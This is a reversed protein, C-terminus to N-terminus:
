EQSEEENSEALKDIWDDGDIVDPGDTDEFPYMIKEDLDDEEKETYGATSRRM